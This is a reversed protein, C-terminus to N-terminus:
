QVLRMRGDRIDITSLRSLATMGILTVGLAGDPLVMARVNKLRISGLRVERLDVPAARVIGNATQTRATYDSARPIVGSAAAIKEPLAITTAGTDIVADVARGNIWVTTLYHGNSSADLVLTRIGGAPKRQSEAREEGAVVAESVQPSVLFTRALDPGILAFALVGALVVLYRWM